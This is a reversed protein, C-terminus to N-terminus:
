AIVDNSYTLHLQDGDFGLKKYFGEVNKTCNLKIKYCKKEKAFNICYEVIQKGYGRNRYEPHVGVDEIHCCYNKYRLKQELIVTATAVLKRDEIGVFTIINLPRSILFTKVEEESCLIEQRSNLEEVCALYDLACDNRNFIKIIM